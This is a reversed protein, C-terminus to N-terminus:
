QDASWRSRCEKGVRREESRWESGALPPFVGPLGAGTPQHCAACRAAYIPAGDLAANAAAAPAAAKPTLDALTRQDGLESALPHHDTLIYYAGVLVMAAMLAFIGLPIPMGAESPDAHERKEQESVRDTDM